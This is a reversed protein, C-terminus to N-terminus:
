AYAHNEIVMLMVACVENGQRVLAFLLRNSDDLKARYFKGHNLGLLKKVDARLFDGREVAAVIGRYAVEV